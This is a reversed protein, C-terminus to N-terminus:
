RMRQQRKEILTQCDFCVKFGWERRQTPMEVECRTNSCYEPGYGKDAPTFKVQKNGAGEANRQEWMMLELEQAQDAEAM